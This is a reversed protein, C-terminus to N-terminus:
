ALPWGAILAAVEVGNIVQALAAGGLQATETHRGNSLYPLAIVGNERWRAITPNVQRKNIRLLERFEWGEANVKREPDLDRRGRRAPAWASEVPTVGIVIRDLFGDYRVALDYRWKVHDTEPLKIISADVLPNGWVQRHMKQMIHALSGSKIQFPTKERMSGSVEGRAIKSKYATEDGFFRQTLPGDSLLYQGGAIEAAVGMVENYHIVELPQHQRNLDYASSTGIGITMGNTNGPYVLAYFFGHGCVAPAYLQFGKFTSASLDARAYHVLPANAAPPVYTVDGVVADEQGDDDDDPKLFCFDPLETKLIHQDVRGEALDQEVSTLADRM